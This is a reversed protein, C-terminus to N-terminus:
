LCLVEGMGDKEAFPFSAKNGDVSKRMLTKAASATSTLHVQIYYGAYLYAGRM